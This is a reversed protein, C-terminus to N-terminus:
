TKIIETKQLFLFYFVFINISTNKFCRWIWDSGLYGSINELDSHNTDRNAWVIVNETDDSINISYTNKKLFDKVKNRGLHQWGKWFKKIDICLCNIIVVLDCSSSPWWYSYSTSCNCLLQFLLFFLTHRQILCNLM